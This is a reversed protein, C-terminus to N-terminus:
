LRRLRVVLWGRRRQRRHHGRVRRRSNVDGHVEIPPSEIFALKIVFKYVNQNAPESPNIGAAVIEEYNLEKSKM